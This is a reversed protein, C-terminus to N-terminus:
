KRNTIRLLLTEIKCRKRSIVVKVPYTVAQSKSFACALIASRAIKAQPTPLSRFSRLLIIKRDTKRHVPSDPEISDPEGSGCAAGALTFLRGDLMSRQRIDYM